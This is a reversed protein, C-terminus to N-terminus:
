ALLPALVVFEGPLAENNSFFGAVRYRFCSLLWYWTRQRRALGLQLSRTSAQLWTHEIVRSCCM